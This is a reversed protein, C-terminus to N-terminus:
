GGCRIILCILRNLKLICSERDGLLSVNNDDIIPPQHTPSHVNRSKENLTPSKLIDAVMASLLRLMRFHNLVIIVLSSQRTQKAGM